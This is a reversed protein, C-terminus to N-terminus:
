AGKVEGGQEQYWSSQSRFMSAYLGGRALLEEHSGKEAVVGDKLVYIQDAMKASALRHSILICGKKQLVAAFTRYMEAEAVPDLSATPEDLIIFASDSLCARSIAIRQWQGGSLDVGDEEIKGLNADLNRHLSEFIGFAMGQGMADALAADDEIKDIDGFAINERLTLSYSAYDQFVAGFIKKLARVPIDNIDTGNITIRGGTTRYLKCLLKVITSKGAGNEGVLAIRQGAYFDMSVGKLIEADTHPYAFHVNEFVIHPSAVDMERETNDIEPLSLFTEYHKLIMYEQSLASFTRSLGESLGLITGASGIVATFVGISVAHRSIEWILVAVILGSWLIMLGTSVAFYKQSRITTKVRENLVKKNVAKWKALIYRVAEFIKLELLSHKEGLLSDLYGLKREEESQSNFLTNMMDMAKFDLWLMLALLGLFLLSFWLSVQSFVVATGLITVLSTLCSLTNLFINLINSQPTEGMRNMTDAIQPDEFCAYEVSLFKNVITTTLNQNVGRQLSICLLNDFFGSGALFLVSLLLLALIGMLYTISVEGSSYPEIHDILLQTFYISMPTLVATAISQLIKFLVATKACKWLIFISKLSEKFM